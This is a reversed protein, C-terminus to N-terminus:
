YIARVESSNAKTPTPISGVFFLNHAQCRVKRLGLMEEFTFQVSLRPTLLEVSQGILSDFIKNEKFLYTRMM